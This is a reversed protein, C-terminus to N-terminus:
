HFARSPSIGLVNVCHGCQKTGPKGAGGRRNNGPRANVMAVQTAEIKQRQEEAEVAKVVEDFTVATKAPQNDVAAVDLLSRNTYFSSLFSGYAPGLRKLFTVIFIPEAIHCSDHVAEIDNRAKRLAEAFESVSTFDSLSLTDYQDLVEIMHSFGSPIWRVKLAALLDAVNERAANPGTFLNKITSKATQGLRSRINAYAAEQDDVWKDQRKQLSAASEKEIPADPFTARRSLLSGLKNAKLLDEADEFWTSSKVLLMPLTEWRGKFAAGKDQVTSDSM